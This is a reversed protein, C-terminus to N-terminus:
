IYIFYNYNSICKFFFFTFTYSEVHVHTTPSVWYRDGRKVCFRDVRDRKATAKLHQVTKKVDNMDRRLAKVETQIDMVITVIQRNTGVNLNARHPAPAAM